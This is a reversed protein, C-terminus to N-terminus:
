ETHSYQQFEADLTVGREECVIAVKMTRIFKTARKEWELPDVLLFKTPLSLM